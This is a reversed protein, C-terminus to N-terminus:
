SLCSKIFNTADQVTRLREAEDDPIKIEFEREIAIVLGVIELSDAQLDNVFSADARIEKVSKRLEEAIIRHVREEIEEHTM